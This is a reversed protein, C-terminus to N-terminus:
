SATQLKQTEVRCSNIHLVPDCYDHKAVGVIGYTRFTAAADTSRCKDHEGDRGKAGVARSCYLAIM